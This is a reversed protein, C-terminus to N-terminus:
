SVFRVDRDRSGCLLPLLDSLPNTGSAGIREIEEFCLSVSYSTMVTNPSSRRLLVLTRVGHDTDYVPTTTKTTSSPNTRTGSYGVEVERLSLLVRDTYSRKSDWRSGLTLVAFLIESAFKQRGRCLYGGHPGSPERCRRTSPRLAREGCRRSVAVTTLPVIEYNKRLM